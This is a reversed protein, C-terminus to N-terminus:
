RPCALLADTGSELRINAVSLDLQGSTSVSFPATIRGMDAGRGSFCALPIKMHLWQGTVAVLEPTVPVAGRCGPGCEVGVEVEASAAKDVRYDFGLSLQGNAERQLDIAAAGTLGIM